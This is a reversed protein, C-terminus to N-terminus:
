KESDSASKLKEVAKKPTLSGSVLGESVSVWADGVAPKYAQDLWVLTHPAQNVLNTGEVVSASSNQETVTGKVPSPTDYPASAWKTANSKNTVFKMFDLALAAQKSKSNIMFGEPAGALTKPDGKADQPAPLQMVGFGDKFVKSDKADVQTFEILEQYYMAAKGSSQEQQSTTYAVGNADKGGACKTVLEQFEEMTKIYGPDSFTAKAPDLDKDIEDRPVNYALLQGLYHAGAWGEKNGFAIPIHGKSKLVSCSSILDEFTKPVEVGSDKFIKKNYGMFKADVM